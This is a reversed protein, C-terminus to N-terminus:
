ALLPRKCIDCDEVKETEAEKRTILEGGGTESACKMCRPFGDVIVGVVNAKPKQTAAELQNLMAGCKYCSEVSDRNGRRVIEGQRNSKSACSFCLYQCNVIVGVIERGKPNSM